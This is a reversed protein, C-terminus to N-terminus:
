PATRIKGAYLRRHFKSLAVCIMLCDTVNQNAMFTVTFVCLDIGVANWVAAASPAVVLIHTQLRGYIRRVRWISMM